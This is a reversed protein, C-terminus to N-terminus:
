DLLSGCKLCPVRETWTKPGKSNSRLDTITVTTHSGDASDDTHFKADFKGKWIKRGSKGKKAAPRAGGNADAEESGDEVLREYTKTLIDDILCEEHMWLKCEQNDCIMMAVEPNFYGNCICHKRLAQFFIVMWEIYISEPASISVSLEQTERCFTQRWYLKSTLNDDEEEWQYVDAKGAFSLVDLVEM